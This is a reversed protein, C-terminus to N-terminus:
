RWFVGNGRDKEELETRWDRQLKRRMEEWNAKRFDRKRTNCEELVEIQVLFKIIEHDSSRPRGETYTKGVM